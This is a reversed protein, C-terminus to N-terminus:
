NSTYVYEKKRMLAKQSPTHDDYGLIHLIGHVVYLKLERQPSTKFIRANKVATDCSIIIDACIKNKEASLDFAM